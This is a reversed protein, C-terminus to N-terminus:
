SKDMMKIFKIKKLNKLAMIKILIKIIKIQNNMQYTLPNLIIKTQKFIIKKSTVKIKQNMWFHFILILVKKNTIFHKNILNNVILKIILKFSKTFFRKSIIKKNNFIKQFIKM